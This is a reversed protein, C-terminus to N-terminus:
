AALQAVVIPLAAGLAAVADAATTTTVGFTVLAVFLGDGQWAAICQDDAICWSKVTGGLLNASTAADATGGWEEDIYQPLDATGPHVDVRLETIGESSASRSGPYIDCYAIDVDGGSFVQGDSTGPSSLEPVLAVVGAVATVVAQQDWPCDGLSDGEDIAKQAATAAGALDLQPGSSKNDNGCASTALLVAMAILVSRRM